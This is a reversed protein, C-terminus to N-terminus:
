SGGHRVQIMHSNKAETWAREEEMAGECSSTNAAALHLTVVEERHQKRSGLM